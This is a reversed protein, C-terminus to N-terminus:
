TVIFRNKDFVMNLVQRTRFVHDRLVHLEALKDAANIDNKELLFRKHIEGIGKPCRIKTPPIKQLEPLFFHLFGVSEGGKTIELRKWDNKATIEVICFTKVGVQDHYNM